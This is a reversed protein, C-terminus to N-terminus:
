HSRRSGDLYQYRWWRRAQLRSVLGGNQPNRLSWRVRGEHGVQGLLPDPFGHIINLTVQVETRQFAIDPILVVLNGPIYVKGFVATDDDVAHGKVHQEANSRQASGPVGGPFRGTAPTLRRDPVLVQRPNFRSSGGAGNRTPRGDAEYFGRAGPDSMILMKEHSERARRVAEGWLVKGLGHGILEPQLFMRLLEVHDGRDRLEFFGIVRGDDELVYVAHNEPGDENAVTKALAQFAEPHNVDHGWYRVGSLTMEDLLERDRANARRFPM